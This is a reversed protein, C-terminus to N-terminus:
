PVTTVRGLVAVTAAYVKELAQREGEAIGDIQLSGSYWVDTLRGNEFQAKILGRRGAVKYELVEIHAATSISRWYYIIIYRNRVCHLPRNDRYHRQAAKSLHTVYLIEGKHIARLAVTPYAYSKRWYWVAVGLVVALGGILAVYPWDVNQWEM